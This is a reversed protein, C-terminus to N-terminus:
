TQGGLLNGVFKLAGNRVPDLEVEVGERGVRVRRLKIVLLLLSVALVSGPDVVMMGKRATYAEDVEDRLAPVACLEQILAIALARDLEQDDILRDVDPSTDLAAGVEAAADDPPREALEVAEVEDEASEALVTTAVQILLRLDPEDLEEPAACWDTM